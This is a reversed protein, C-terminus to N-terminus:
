VADDIKSDENNMEIYTDKVSEVIFAPLRDDMGYTKITTEGVYEGYIIYYGLGGWRRHASCYEDKLVLWKEFLHQYDEKKIMIVCEQAEYGDEITIGMISLTDEVNTGVILPNGIDYHLGFIQSHDFQQIKQSEKVEKLYKKFKVAKFVTSPTLYKEMVDNGKWVTYRNAVVLKVDEIGHENIRHRLERITNESKANFNRKYLNNMFTIVEVVENLNNKKLESKSEKM